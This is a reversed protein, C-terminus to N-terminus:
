QGLTDWMQSKSPVLSMTFELESLGDAHIAHVQNIKIRTKKPTQQKEILNWLIFLFSTLLLPVYGDVIVVPIKVALTAKLVISNYTQNKERLLKILM